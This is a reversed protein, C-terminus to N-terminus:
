STPIRALVTDLQAVAYAAVVSMLAHFAAFSIALGATIRQAELYKPDGMYNLTLLHGHIAKSKRYQGTVWLAHSGSLALLGFMVLAQMKSSTGVVEQAQASTLLWGIVFVVITGQKFEFDILGKRFDKLDGYLSEHIERASATPVNDDSRAMVLIEKQEHPVSPM